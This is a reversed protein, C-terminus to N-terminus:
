EEQRHSQAAKLLEQIRSTIERIHVNVEDLTPPPPPTTVSTPESVQNSLSTCHNRMPIPPPPTTPNPTDRAAEEYFPTDDAVDKGLSMICTICTTIVYEM